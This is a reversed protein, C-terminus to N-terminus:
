LVKRMQQTPSGPCTQHPFSIDAIVEFLTGAPLHRPDGMWALPVDDKIAQWAQVAIEPGIGAPEGCSIVVPRPANSM